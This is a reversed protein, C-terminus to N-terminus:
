ATVEEEEVNSVERLTIKMPMAGDLQLSVSKVLCKRLGTYGEQGDPILLEVVDGEWIPLYLTTLEWEISENSDRDLHERALQQARMATAPQLDRVEVFDTVRFGRNARHQHAQQWVTASGHIERQITQSGQPGGSTTETWKYSVVAEDPMMLWDTKRTLAGSAVGKSSQLDIRLKPTRAKPEVYPEVTVDGMPSVDLRSRSANTMAFLASLRSTGTDLLQPTKFRYISPAGVLRYYDAGDIIQHMVTEAYANAAITWPANLLDTSLGYLRSQLTMDYHWAGANRSAGDDTVIYTGIVNSYGWEPIEHVIRLMSGRIWGDGLVAVKGSTRTDSYYGCDITSAALNVGKLEGLVRSPDRPDVMLVRVRNVKSADTWDLAAM